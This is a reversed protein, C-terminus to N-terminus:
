QMMSSINDQFMGLTMNVPMTQHLRLIPADFQELPPSRLKGGGLM